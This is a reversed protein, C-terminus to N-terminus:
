AGFRARLYIGAAIMLAGAFVRGVPMVLRDPLFVFIAPVQFFHAIARPPEVFAFLLYLAGMVLFVVLLFTM